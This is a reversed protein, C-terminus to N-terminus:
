AARAGRDMDRDDHISVPAPRPRAAQRADCSMTSPHVRHAASHAGGSFQADLM